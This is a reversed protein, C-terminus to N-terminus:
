ASYADAARVIQVDGSVTKVHLPVVAGEQEPESSAAGDEVGLESSLDGSLSAADIFVRTGRGVGIRADGSVTQARVEGSEVADLAIDGSTTSLNLPGRVRGIRVDGSVSRAQLDSEFSDLRVDGSVTVVQGGREITGASVDGSATKVQFKKAVDGLTVDGSATKVSVEGLDGEVRIDASGSSFELNSGPPCTVRVEIDGGWSIQIPGWRIRDKHEITILHGGHREDASVEIADVADSGRRGTPILDVSTRPEDVTTVV